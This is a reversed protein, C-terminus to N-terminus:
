ARHSQMLPLLQSFWVQSADQMWTRSDQSFVELLKFDVYLVDVTQIVQLLIFGVQCVEGSCMAHTLGSTFVSYMDCLEKTM